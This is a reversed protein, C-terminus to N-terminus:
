ALFSFLRYNGAPSAAQNQPQNEMLFTSVPHPYYLGNM